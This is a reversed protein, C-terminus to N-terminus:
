QGISRCSVGQNSYKQALLLVFGTDLAVPFTSINVESILHAKRVEDLYEELQELEEYIKTGVAGNKANFKIKTKELLHEKRQLADAKNNIQIAPVFLYTCLMSIRVGTLGQNPDRTFTRWTSFDLLTTPHYITTQIASMLLPAGVSFIMLWVITSQFLTFYGNFLLQAGTLFILTLTLTLDKVFNLYSFTVRAVKAINSGKDNGSCSCAQSHCCQGCCDTCSNCTCSIASGYKKKIFTILDEKADKLTGMCSPRHTFDEIIKMCTEKSIRKKMAIFSAAQTDAMSLALKKNRIRREGRSLGLHQLQIVSVKIRPDGIAEKVELDSGEALVKLINDNPAVPGTGSKPTQKRQFVRAFILSLTLTSVVVIVLLTM